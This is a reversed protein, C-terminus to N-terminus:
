KFRTKIFLICTNSLTVKQKFENYKIISTGTVVAVTTIINKKKKKKYKKIIIIKESFNLNLIGRSM